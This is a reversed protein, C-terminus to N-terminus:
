YHNLYSKNTYAGWANLGQDKYISLAVDLNPGPKRMDEISYGMRNIRDKHVNTNVQWLGISYENRKYPDTGSQVTDITPNGGSEGM